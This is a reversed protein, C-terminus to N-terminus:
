AFATKRLRSTSLCTPTATNRPPLSSARGFSRYTSYDLKASIGLRVDLTCPKALRSYLEGTVAIVSKYGLHKLPFYTLDFDIGELFLATAQTCVGSSADTPVSAAKFPEYGSGEYLRAVAEM